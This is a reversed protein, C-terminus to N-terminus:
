IDESGRPTRIEGTQGDMDPILKDLQPRLEHAYKSFLPDHDLLIPFMESARDGYLLLIENM